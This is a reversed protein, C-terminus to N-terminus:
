NHRPIYRLQVALTAATPSKQRGQHLLLLGPQEVFSASTCIKPGRRTREEHTTLEARVFVVAVGCYRRERESSGSPPSTISAVRFRRKAWNRRRGSREIEEGLLCNRRPSFWPPEASIADDSLSKAAKAGWAALIIFYWRVSLPPSPGLVASPEITHRDNSKEGRVNDIGM